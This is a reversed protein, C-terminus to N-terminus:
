QLLGSLVDGEITFSGETSEGRVIVYLQRPMVDLRVIEVEASLVDAVEEVSTKLATQALEPTADEGLVSPFYRTGRTTDRYFTGYFYRLKQVVRQIVSDLGTAIGGNWDYPREETPFM